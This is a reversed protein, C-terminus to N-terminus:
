KFVLDYRSKLFDYTEKELDKSQSFDKVFSWNNNSRDFLWYNFGAVVFLDGDKHLIARTYFAIWLRKQEDYIVLVIHQYLNAVDDNEYFEVSLNVDKGNHVASRSSVNKQWKTYDPLTQQAVAWATTLLLIVVTIGPVRVTNKM